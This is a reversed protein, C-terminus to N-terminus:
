MAPEGHKLLLRLGELASCSCTPSFTALCSFLTFCRRHCPLLSFASSPSAATIVPKPRKRGERSRCAFESLTQVLEFGVDSVIEIEDGVAAFAISLTFRDARREHFGRDGFHDTLAEDLLLLHLPRRGGRV